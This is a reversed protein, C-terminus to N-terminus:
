VFHGYVRGRSMARLIDAYLKNLEKQARRYEDNDICSLGWQVELADLSVEESCRIDDM